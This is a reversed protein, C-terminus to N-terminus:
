LPQRADGSRGGALAAALEVVSKVLWAWLLGALGFAALGISFASGAVLAGLFTVALARRAAGRGQLEVVRLQTFAALVIAAAFAVPAMGLEGGLWRGLLNPAFATIVAVGAVFLAGAGATLRWAGRILAAEDQGGVVRAFLIPTILYPILWFRSFLEYLLYYGGYTAAPLLRLALLRDLSGGAAALASVGAFDLWRRDSLRAAVAEFRGRGHDERMWGGVLWALLLRPLTSVLIAAWM